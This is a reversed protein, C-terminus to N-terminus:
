DRTDEHLAALANEYAKPKGIHLIELAKTTMAEDEDLERIEQATEEPTARIADVVREIQKDTDLHM